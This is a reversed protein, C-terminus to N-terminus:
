AGEDEDKVMDTDTRTAATGTKELPYDMALQQLEQRNTAGLLGLLLRWCSEPRERRVRLRATKTASRTSIM